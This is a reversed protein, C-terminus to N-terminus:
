EGNRPGLQFSRRGLLPADAARANSRRTWLCRTIVAPRAAFGARWASWCPAFNTKSEAIPAASSPRPATQCENASSPLTWGETDDPSVPRYLALERRSTPFSICTLAVVWLCGRATPTTCDTRGSPSTRKMLDNATLRGRPSFGKTTAPAPRPASAGSKWAHHVRKEQPFESWRPDSGEPALARQQRPRPVRRQLAARGRM